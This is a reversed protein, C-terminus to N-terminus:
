IAKIVMGTTSLIQSATQPSKIAIIVLLLIIIALCRYIWKMMKSMKQELCDLHKFLRPFFRDQSEEVKSVRTDLEEVHKELEDVKEIIGDSM